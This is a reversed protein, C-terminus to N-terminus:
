PPSQRANRIREYKENIMRREKLRGSIDLALGVLSLLLLAIGVARQRSKCRFVIVASLVGTILFCPEFPGVVFPRLCWLILVAAVLHKFGFKETM